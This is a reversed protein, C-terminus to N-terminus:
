LSRGGDRRIRDAAHRTAAANEEQRRSKQEVRNAAKFRKIVEAQSRELNTKMPKRAADNHANESVTPEKQQAAPTPTAPERPAAADATPAAPQTLARHQAVVHAILEERTLM